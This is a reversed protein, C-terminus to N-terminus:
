SESEVHAVCEDSVDAFADDLVEGGDAIDDVGSGTELTLGLGALDDHRFTDVGEASIAVRVGLLDLEVELALAFWDGGPDDLECSRDGGLTRSVSSSRAQSWDTM